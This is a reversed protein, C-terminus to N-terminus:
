EESRDELVPEVQTPQDQVVSELLSDNKIQAAIKVGVDLQQGQAPEVIPRGAIQLGRQQFIYGSNFANQNVADFLSGDRQQGDEHRQSQHAIVTERQSQEREARNRKESAARKPVREGGMAPISQLPTSRGRHVRQQVVIKGTNALDSAKGAFFVLVPSEIADAVLKAPGREHHHLYPCHVVGRHIQYARKTNNDRNEESFPSHEGACHLQANETREQYQGTIKALRDSLQM